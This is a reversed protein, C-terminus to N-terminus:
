QIRKIEKISQVLNKLQQKDIFNEAFLIVGGIFPDKLLERDNLSLETNPISTIIPGLM